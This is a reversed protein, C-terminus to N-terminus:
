LFNGGQANYGIEPIGGSFFSGNYVLEREYGSNPFGTNVVKSVITMQLTDGPMM